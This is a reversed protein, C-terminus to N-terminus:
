YLNPDRSVGIRFTVPVHANGAYDLKVRFYVENDDNVNIQPDNVEFSGEFNKCGEILRKLLSAIEFENM